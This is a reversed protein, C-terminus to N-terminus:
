QLSEIFEDVWERAETYSMTFKSMCRNIWTPQAVGSRNLSQLFNFIEARKNQTRAMLFGDM